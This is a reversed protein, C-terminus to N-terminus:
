FLSGQETKTSSKKSAPMQTVAKKIGEAPKITPIQKVEPEEKEIMKQFKPQEELIIYKRDCLFLDVGIRSKIKQLDKQTFKLNEGRQSFIHVVHPPYANVIQCIMRDIDLKFCHGVYPAISEGGLTVAVGYKKHRIRYVLGM